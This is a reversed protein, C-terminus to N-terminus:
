WRRWLPRRLSPDVTRAYLSELMAKVQEVTSPLHLMRDALGMRHLELYAHNDLRRTFISLPLLPGANRVPELVEGIEQFGRIELLAVFPRENRLSRLFPALWDEAATDVTEIEHFPHSRALLDRIESAAGLDRALM